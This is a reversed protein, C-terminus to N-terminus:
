TAEIDLSIDLAKASHTLAGSSIIDVGTEAIARVTAITIGGSAETLARGRCLAVCRAMEKISMNDLLIVDAAAALAEECEAYSTVEVEIRATHPTGQRAAAVVQALSLGRSRGAALHNDKILVGDALNFRHNTGGGARVAYRELARLGPTTKRTDVIRAKTGAVADVLARTATATGSLRQLFNLAVREASLIPAVPGEVEAIVTGPEVRAGDEIVSRLTISPDVAAFAASAVPLGAIVGAEKALFVGRGRQQPPVTSLTTIDRDAGDEDLAARVIRDVFARDLTPGSM